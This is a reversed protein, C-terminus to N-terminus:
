QRVRALTLKLYAFVATFLFAYLMDRLQFSKQIYIVQIRSCVIELNLGDRGHGRYTVFSQNIYIYRAPNCNVNSRQDDM